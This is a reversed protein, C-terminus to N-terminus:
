EIAILQMHMSQPKLIYKLIRNEFNHKLHFIKVLRNEFRMKTKTYLMPLSITNYKQYRITLFLERKGNIWPMINYLIKTDSTTHNKINFCKITWSKLITPDLLSLVRLMSCSIEGILLTLPTRLLNSIKSSYIPHNCFHEIVTRDADVQLVDMFRKEDIDPFNKAFFDAVLVNTEVIQKYYLGLKIKRKICCRLIFKFMLFFENKTENKTESIKQQDLVLKFIEVLWYDDFDFHKVIFRFIKYNTNHVINKVDQMIIRNYKYKTFLHKLIEYNAYKIIDSVNAHFSSSISYIYDLTPIHGVKLAENLMLSVYTNFAESNTSNVCFLEKHLNIIQPVQDWNM